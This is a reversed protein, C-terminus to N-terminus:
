PLLIPVHVHSGYMCPAEVKAGAAKWKVLELAWEWRRGSECARIAGNQPVIGDAKLGASRPM